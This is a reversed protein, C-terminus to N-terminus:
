ARSSEKLETGPVTLRIKCIIHPMREIEKRVILGRRLAEDLALKLQSRDTGDGQLLDTITRLPRTVRVGHMEQVEGPKLEARHLVLIDPIVNRRFEKPVTMHLKSPMLDSLEHLSLATSHSYTGQPIELRNQSWLYWLMLDPRDTTPFNAIRYIGRHERIWNGARVHYRHTPETFGARTAQKTTFFGHQSQAIELPKFRHVFWCMTM